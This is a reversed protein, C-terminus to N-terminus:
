SFFQTASKWTKYATDVGTKAFQDVADLQQKDARTLNEFMSVSQDLMQNRMDELLDWGKLWNQTIYEM